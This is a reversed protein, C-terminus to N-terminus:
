FCSSLILTMLLGQLPSLAKISWFVSCVKGDSSLFNAVFMTISRLMKPLSLLFWSSFHSFLVISFEELSNTVQNKLFESFEEIM